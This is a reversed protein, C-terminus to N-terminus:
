NQPPTSALSGTVPASGLGVVEGKAVVYEKMAAILSDYSKGADAPLTHNLAFVQFHYRHKPGPPTRPGAYAQAEGKINPGYVVGTPATTMASDLKTDTINFATWHLIPKGMDIADPDQMIVVYSKTGEPGATWTLGPFTNTEWQTAWMPIDAGPQFSPSTVTLTMPQPPKAAVRTIALLPLGPEAGVPVGQAGSISAAAATAAILSLLRTIQNRHM